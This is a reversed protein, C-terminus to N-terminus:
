IIIYINSEYEQEITWSEWKAVSIFVGKFPYFRTFLGCVSNENHFQNCKTYADTHTCLFHNEEEPEGKWCLWRFWGCADFLGVLDRM